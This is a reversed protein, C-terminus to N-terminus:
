RYGTVEIIRRIVDDMDVHKSNSTDIEVLGIDLALPTALREQSVKELEAVLSSDLHRHASTARERARQILIESEAVCHM